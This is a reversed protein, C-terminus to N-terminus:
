IENEEEEELEKLYDEYDSELQNFDDKELYGGDFEIYDMDTFDSFGCRYAIPDLERLVESPSFACSGIQVTEHVEDLFEDYKEDMETGDIVKFLNDSAFEEITMVEKKSM